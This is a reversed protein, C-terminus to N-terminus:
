PNTKTIVARTVNPGTVRGFKRALSKADAAAHVIRGSVFHITSADGRPRVDEITYPNVYMTGSQPTKVPIFSM